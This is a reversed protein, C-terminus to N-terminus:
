FEPRYFLNQILTRNADILIFSPRGFVKFIINFVVISFVVIGEDEFDKGKSLTAYNTQSM